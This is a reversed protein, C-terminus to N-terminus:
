TRGWTAPLTTSEQRSDLADQSPLEQKTAVSVLDSTDPRVGHAYEETYIRACEFYTPYDEQYSYEETGSALADEFNPTDLLAVISLLGKESTLVPSWGTNFINHCIIGDSRINPHYIPTIFRLNFPWMPYNPPFALHLWFVGGAYPSGPPGEISVLCNDLAGDILEVSIYALTKDQHISRLEHYIRHMPDLKASSRRGYEANHEKVIKGGSEKIDSLLSGYHSQHHQAFRSTLMEEAMAPVSDHEQPISM